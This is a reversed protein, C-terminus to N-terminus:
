RWRVARRARRATFRLTGAAFAFACYLHYLVHLLFGGLAFLRGRKSALFVYFPRDFVFIALACLVAFVLTWPALPAVVLSAALGVAALVSARGTPSVNLDSALRGRELMLETWPIGRAFVDTRVLSAFTWVKHHKVQVEPALRIRYGADRLRAGLEIDEISPRAYRVADFGGVHRFAAARVVGCGSWFTEADAKGCHHVFHHQLNKWAAVFRASAPRDDYAGFLADIDPEATLIAAARELTRPEVECDADLFFLYPARAARAGRNRAAAPGRGDLRIMTAEAVTGSGDRSGDDVVILEYDRFRSACLAELCTEFTAGGDRVPIVVSFFPASM